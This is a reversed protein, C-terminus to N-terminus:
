TRDPIFVDNMIDHARKQQVAETDGGEQLAICLIRISGLGRKRDQNQIFAAKGFPTGFRRADPPLMAAVSPMTFVALHTNKEGVHASGSVGENIAFQVEWLEPTGIRSAPLFDM